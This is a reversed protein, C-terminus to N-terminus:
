KDLCIVIWLLSFFYVFDFVLPLVFFHREKALQYFTCSLISSKAESNCFPLMTVICGIMGLLYYSLLNKTCAHCFYRLFIQHGSVCFTFESSILCLKVIFKSSILCLHVESNCIQCCPASPAGILGSLHHTKYINKMM